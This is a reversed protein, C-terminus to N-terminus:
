FTAESGFYFAIGPQFLVYRPSRFDLHERYNKNGFNELGGILRVAPSAQYYGRLDWVTFGPTATENLSTAVRNQMRVVGRRWKSIGAANM